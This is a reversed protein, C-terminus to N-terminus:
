DNLYEHSESPVLVADKNVLFNENEIQCKWNLTVEQSVVRLDRGAVKMESMQAPKSYNGQLQDYVVHLESSGVWKVHFANECTSRKVDYVSWARFESNYLRDRTRVSLHYASVPQKSEYQESDYRTVVYEMSGHPSVERLVVDVDSQSPHRSTNIIVGVGMIGLFFLVGITCFAYFLYKM